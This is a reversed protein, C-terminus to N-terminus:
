SEGKRFDIRPKEKPAPAVGQETFAYPLYRRGGRGKSTGFQSRLSKGGHDNSTGFHRRLLGVEDDTLQFMFDAPFRGINRKVARNLAKVSVEYLAALESDLMVKQGRLVLIAHEIREAPVLLKDAM